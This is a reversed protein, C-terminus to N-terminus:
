GYITTEVSLERKEYAKVADRGAADPDLCYRLHQTAIRLKDPDHTSAVDVLTQESAAVQETGVQRATRAIVAVHAHSIRGASFAEDVAPLQRLQRAM